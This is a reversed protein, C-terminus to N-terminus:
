FKYGASEVLERDSAITSGTTTLLDGTIGGNIGVRLCERLAEASLRERGGAFRLQIDPHAMRFIAVTIIIERESILEADALPTGPIPCLINIPISVPRARRLTLAFEARQRRNEGMGIIGGSCVDLGARHAADITALKDEITHTTCLTPFHSPATELNCHYRTAGSKKLQRLGEEDLLGLSACTHMGTRSKVEALIDCIYDLAKGRVARGSAVLSYRNIGGRANHDAVAIAEDRDVLDYTSCGTNFHASQACWKCNESCRGSRANVISCPDFKRDNFTRTVEAAADCLATVGEDSDVDALAYITSESLVEGALVAKRAEEVLAKEEHIDM